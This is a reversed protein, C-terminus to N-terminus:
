NLARGHTRADGQHFSAWMGSTGFGPYIKMDRLFEGRDEQPLQNYIAYAAEGRSDSSMGAMASLIRGNVGSPKRRLFKYKDILRKRETPPQTKIFRLLDPWDQAGHKIGDTIKDFQGNVESRYDNETRRVKYITHYIDRSVPSTTNLFRQTVPFTDLMDNWFWEREVQNEAVADALGKWALGTGKLFPNGSSFVKGFSAELRAPSVGAAMGINKAMVSTREDYEYQASVERFPSWINRQKWVDINAFYALAAQATPPVMKSVVAKQFQELANDEPFKGEFLFKPIVDFLLSFGPIEPKPFKMYYSTKEGTPGTREFPTVFIYNNAKDYDSVRDLGEPNLARSTMYATLSLAGLQSTKWAFMMPDEQAARIVSRTGQEAASLYPAFAIDLTKTLRGADQFDIIRNAEYAAKRLAVQNKLLDDVGTGAATAQNKMARQFNALRMWWESFESFKAMGNLMSRAKGKRQSVAGHKVFDEFTQIGREGFHAYYPGQVGARRAADTIPGRMTWAERMVAKLDGMGQFTAVFFNSSRQNSVVFSQAADRLINVLAFAPNYATAGARLPKSGTLWSFIQVSSRAMMPPLDDMDKVLEKNVWLTEVVAKSPDDVSPNIVRLEQMNLPLKEGQKPLMAFSSKVGETQNKLGVRHFERALNNKNIARETSGLAYRALTRVDFDMIDASGGRLREMTKPDAIQGPGSVERTLADIFADEDGAKLLSDDAMRLFHRRVYKDDALHEYVKRDIMRNAELQDLVEEKMMRFFQDERAVLQPYKDRAMEKFDEWNRLSIGATQLEEIGGDDLFNEVWKRQRDSLGSWFEKNIRGGEVRATIEGAEKRTLKGTKVSEALAEVMSKDSIEGAPTKFAFRGLAKGQQSRHWRKTADITADSVIMSRLMDEEEPILDKFVAREIDDAKTSAITM